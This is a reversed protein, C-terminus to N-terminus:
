KDLFKSWTHLQWLNPNSIPSLNYTSTFDQYMGMQLDNVNKGQLKAM